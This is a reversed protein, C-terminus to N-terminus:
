VQAHKQAAKVGNAAAQVYDAESKAMHDQCACCPYSYTFLFAQVVSCVVAQEDNVDPRQHACAGFVVVLLCASPKM